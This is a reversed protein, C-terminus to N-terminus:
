LASGRFIPDDTWGVVVFALLVMDYPTRSYFLRRNIVSWVVLLGLLLIFGNREVILLSKFPLVAIYVALVVRVITDFYPVRESAPM